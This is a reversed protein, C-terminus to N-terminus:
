LYMGLPRATKTAPRRTTQVEPPVPTPLFGNADPHNIVLLGPDYYDQDDYNYVLYEDYYFPGQKFTNTNDDAATTTTSSATKKTTPGTGTSGDLIPKKFPVKQAQKLYFSLCENLLPKGVQNKFLCDFNLVCQLKKFFNRISRGLIIKVM